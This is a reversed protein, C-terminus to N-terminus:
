RIPSIIRYTTVLLIKRSFYGMVLAVRMSRRAKRNPRPPTERARGASSAIPASTVSLAGRRNQARYVAFPMDSGYSVYRYTSNIVLEAGLWYGLVVIHIVLLVHLLM